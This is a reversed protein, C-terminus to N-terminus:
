SSSRSRSLGYAGSVGAVLALVTSGTAVVLSNWLWQGVATQKVVGTYGELAYSTPLFRPPYAFLGAGTDMSTKVMWYFPFVVACLLCALSAWFAARWLIRKLTRRKAM